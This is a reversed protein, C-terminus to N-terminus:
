VTKELKGKVEERMHGLIKRLVRSDFVMFRHEERLTVSQTECGYLFL